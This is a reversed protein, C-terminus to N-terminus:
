FRSDARTVVRMRKRRRMWDDTAAEAGIGALGATRVFVRWIALAEDALDHGLQDTRGTAWASLVIERDLKPSRIAMEEAVTALPPAGAGGHPLSLDVIGGRLLRHLRALFHHAIMPPATEAADLLLPVLAHDVNWGILIADAPLLDAVWELLPAESEGALVMRGHHAFRWREFDYQTAVFLSLGVLSRGPPYAGGASPPIAVMVATMAVYTTVTM